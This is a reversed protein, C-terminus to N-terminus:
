TSVTITLLGSLCQFVCRSVALAVTRTWLETKLQIILILYAYMDRSNDIILFFILHYFQVSLQVCLVWNWSNQTSLCGRSIHQVSISLLKLSNKTMHSWILTLVFINFYLRDQPVFQCITTFCFAHKNFINWKEPRLNHMLFFRNWNM